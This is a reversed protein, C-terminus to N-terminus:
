DGALTVPLFTRRNLRPDLTPTPGPTSTPPPQGGGSFGFADSNAFVRVYDVELAANSLDAAPAGSLNGSGINLIMYMPVDIVSASTRFTERGDVYFIVQDPTWNVAYTHFGDGLGAGHLYSASDAANFQTATNFHITHWSLQPDKTYHELVDIEPPWIVNGQPTKAPLLWFAPWLGSSTPMKMRAEFFGYTTNFSQSTQLLASAYDRTVQRGAGYSCGICVTAREPTLALRLVGNSVSANAPKFWVNKSYDADATCDGSYAICHQWTAGDVANGGFEDGFRAPAPCVHVADLWVSGAAGGLSFTLTANSAAASQFVFFFHKFAADQAPDPLPVERQWLAAGNSALAVRITRGASARAYFGISQWGGSLALGSQRLQVSDASAGGNVIQLRAGTASRAGADLSLAAQAPAVADFVWPSASSNEFDGNVVRCNASVPQPTPPPPQTASECMSIADFWASGGTEGLNVRFSPTTTPAGAPYDFTYSFQQWGTSLAIAQSWPVAFPADFQQLFVEANRAQSARAWFTLTYRRGLTMPVAEHVLQIDWPNSGPNSITVRASTTGIHGSDKSLTAAAGTSPRGQAYWPSLSASEFDGNVLVCAGTVRTDAADATSLAPAVALLACLALGTFCARIRTTPDYTM